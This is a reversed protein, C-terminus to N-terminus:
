DTRNTFISKDTVTKTSSTKDWLVMRNNVSSINIMQLNEKKKDIMNVKTMTVSHKKPFFLM